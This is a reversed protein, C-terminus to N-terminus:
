KKQNSAHLIKSITKFDGLSNKCTKCRVPRMNGPRSFGISQVPPSTSANPLWPLWPERLGPVFVLIAGPRLMTVTQHREWVSQLRKWRRFKSKSAGHKACFSLYCIGCRFKFQNLSMADCPRARRWVRWPYNLYVSSGLHM